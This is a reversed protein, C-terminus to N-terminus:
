YTGQCFIVGYSDGGTGANYIATGFNLTACSSCSLALTQQPYPYNSTINCNIAKYTKTFNINYNGTSNRSVSSITNGISNFLTCPTSTCYSGLTSGNYSTSFMDVNSQNPVQPINQFSGVIVGYDQWGQIPIPGSILTLTALAFNTGNQKVIPSTTSQSVGFTVYGVSPEILLTQYSAAGQANAYTGIQSITPLLSSSVLSNPFLVRAEVASTSAVTFTCRLYLDSGKRKHYCNSGSITMGNVSPVYSTWDYDQSMNSFIKSSGYDAGTKQCAVYVPISAVAAGSSSNLTNVTFGTSSVNYVNGLTTSGGSGSNQTSWCNPTLNFIGTSFTCVSPNAATCSAIWTKNQNSVTGSTTTVQASYVTDPLVNQFPSSLGVFANDIHTDLMSANTTKIHIGNNTGGAIFPIQILKFVGTGSYAGVTVCNTDVSNVYACVQLTSDDTYINVSAMMQLGAIKAANITSVQSIDFSGASSAGSIASKGDTVNVSDVAWAGTTKTWGQGLTPSEFSPNSLLNTNGTEIRSNTGVLQTSQNNPTKFNFTTVNTSAQEGTLTTPPLGALISLSILCVIAIFLKM